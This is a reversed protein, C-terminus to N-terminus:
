YGFGQDRDIERDRERSQERSQEQRPPDLIRQRSAEDRWPARFCGRAAVAEATREIISGPEPAGPGSARIIRLALAHGNATETRTEVDAEVTRVEGGPGAAETWAIRDGPVPEPCPMRCIGDPVSRQRALELARLGENQWPARICGGDLLSQASAEVLRGESPARRQTPDAVWLTLTDNGRMGNAAGPSVVVAQWTRGDTRFALRDGAILPADGTWAIGRELAPLRALRDTERRVAEAVAPLQAAARLEAPDAAPGDQGALERATEMQARWGRDRDLWDNAAGRASAPLAERDVLSRAMETARDYGEAHLPLTKEDRARAEVSASAARFDATRDHLERTELRDLVEAVRERLRPMDELRSAASTEAM